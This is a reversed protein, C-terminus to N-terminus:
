NWQDRDFDLIAAKLSTATKTPSEKYIDSLEKRAIKLENLKQVRKREILIGACMLASSLTTVLFYILFTNEVEKTKIVYYLLYIISYCGYAFVLAATILAKGAAKHHVITIRSQRVFFYLCFVIVSTLGPAMIITVAEINLGKITIVIVEFLVFAAIGWKMRKAFLSSTSFYTLFWLLLPADLLNNGLGWYRTLNADANIYGETMLNYVFVFIYYLLLAPFSRYAGLKLTLILLVPLFLAITSIFGMTSNWTM